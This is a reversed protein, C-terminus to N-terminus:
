ARRFEKEKRGLAKQVKPWLAKDIKKVTNASAFDGSMVHRLAVAGWKFAEPSKTKLLCRALGPVPNSGYALEKELTGLTEAKPLNKLSLATALGVTEQPSLVSFNFQNRLSVTEEMAPAAFYNQDYGGGFVFSVAARGILKQEKIEKSRNGYRQFQRLLSFEEAMTEMALDSRGYLKEARKTRLTLAHGLEHDFMARKCQGRSYSGPWTSFSSADDALYMFVVNFPMGPDKSYHSRRIKKCNDLKKRFVANGFVKDQMKKNLHPHVLRGEAADVFYTNGKLEPFFAYTRAVEADFDFPADPKMRRSFEPTANKKQM